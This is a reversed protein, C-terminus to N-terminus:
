KKPPQTLSLVRHKPTQYSCGSNRLVRRLHALPPFLRHHTARRRLVKWFPETVQLQANDSPLRYLELPTVEKLVTTLLAGKHWPANDIMLVMRPYWEAPYIWAMDPLHRAFAEQLRRQRATEQQAPDVKLDHSPAIPVGHRSCFARM